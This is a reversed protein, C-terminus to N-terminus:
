LAEGPFVPAVGALDSVPPSPCPAACSSRGPSALELARAVLELLADVIEVIVDAVGALLGARRSSRDASVALEVVVILGVGVVVRGASSEAPTAVLM